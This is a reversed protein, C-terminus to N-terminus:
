ELMIKARDDSQQAFFNRNIYGAGRANRGDSVAGCAEFVYTVEAPSLADWMPDYATQTGFWGHLAIVRHPGMGFPQYGITM